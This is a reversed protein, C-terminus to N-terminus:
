WGFLSGPNEVLVRRREEETELVEGMVDVLQGDDPAPGSINPHPFDTGWVV